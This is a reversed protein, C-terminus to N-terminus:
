TARAQCSTWSPNRFANGGGDTTAHHGGGDDGSGEVLWRPSESEERGGLHGHAINRCGPLHIILHLKSASLTRAV